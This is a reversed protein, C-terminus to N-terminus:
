VWGCIRYNLASRKYNCLTHFLVGGSGISQKELYDVGGETFSQTFSKFQYKWCNTTKMRWTSCVTSKKIMVHWDTLLPQTILVALIKATLIANGLGNFCIDRRYLTLSSRSHVNDNLVKLMEVLHLACLMLPWKHNCPTTVSLRMEAYLDYYQQDMIKPKCM